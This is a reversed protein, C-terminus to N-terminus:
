QQDGTRQMEEMLAKTGRSIEENVAEAKTAETRASALRAMLTSEGALREALIMDESVVAKNALILKQRAEDLEASAYHGADDQQAAQIAVKAETLAATPAMPTSACGAILLLAGALGSAIYLRYTQNIRSSVPM